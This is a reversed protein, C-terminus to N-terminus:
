GKAAASSDIKLVKALSFKKVYNTVQSTNEAKMVASFTNQAVIFRAMFWPENGLFRINSIGIEMEPSDAGGGGGGSTAFVVHFGQSKLHTTLQALQPPVKLKCQFSGSTQLATWLTKFQQASLTLATTLREQEQKREEEEEAEKEEMLKRLRENEVRAAEMAEADAKKRREEAEAAARAEELRRAERERDLRERQMREEAERDGQELSKLLLEEKTAKKAETPQM